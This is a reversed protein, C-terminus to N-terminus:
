EKIESVDHHLLSTIQTDQQVKERMVDELQTLRTTILKQDSEDKDFGDIELSIDEELAVLRAKMDNRVENLATIQNTKASLLELKFSEKMKEEKFVLSEEQLDIEKKFKRSEEAIQEKALALCRRLNDVENSSRSSKHEWPMTQTQCAVDMTCPTPKGGLSTHSRTSACGESETSRVRDIYQRIDELCPMEYPEGSTQSRHSRSELHLGQNRPYELTKAASSFNDFGRHGRTTRNENPNAHPTPPSKPGELLERPQHLVNTEEQRLSCATQESTSNKISSPSKAFRDLKGSHTSRACSRLSQISDESSLFKLVESDVPALFEVACQGKKRLHHLFYLLALISFCAGQLGARVRTENMLTSIGVQKTYFNLREWNTLSKDGPSVSLLTPWIVHFLDVLVSGDAVDKISTLSRGTCSHVWAQIQPEGVGVYDGLNKTSMPNTECFFSLVFFLNLGWGDIM